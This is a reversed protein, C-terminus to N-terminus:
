ERPPGSAKDQEKGTAAPATFSPYSKAGIQPPKARNQDVAGCWPVAAEQAEGDGRRPQNEVLSTPSIKEDLYDWSTAAPENIKLQTEARLRLQPSGQPLPSFFIDPAASTAIAAEM